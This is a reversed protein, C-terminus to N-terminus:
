ACVGWIPFPTGRTRCNARRQCDGRGQGKPPIHGNDCMSCWASARGAEGGGPAGAKTRRQASRDLNRDSCPAQPVGHASGTHRSPPSEPFRFAAKGAPGAARHGACVRWNRERVTGQSVPAEVTRRTQSLSSGTSAPCHHVDTFVAPSHAHRASQPAPTGRDRPCAPRPRGARSM